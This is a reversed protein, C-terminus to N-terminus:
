KVILVCRRMSTFLIISIHSMCVFILNLVMKQCCISRKTSTLTSLMWKIYQRKTRCRHFFDRYTYFAPTSFLLLHTRSAATLFRVTMEISINKHTCQCLQIFEVVSNLVSKIESQQGRLEVRPETYLLSWCCEHTVSTQIDRKKWVMPQWVFHITFIILINSVILGRM